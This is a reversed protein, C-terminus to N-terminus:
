CSRSVEEYRLEGLDRKTYVVIRERVKGEGMGEARQVAAGGGSLRNGGWGAGENGGVGAGM